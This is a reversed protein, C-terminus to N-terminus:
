IIMISKTQFYSLFGSPGFDYLGKVGQYIDFSPAMFFKRKLVNEMRERKKKGLKTFKKEM